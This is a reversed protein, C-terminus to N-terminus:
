GILAVSRNILAVLEAQRNTGTKGLVHRLHTRATNITIAHEGAAHEVTKGKVVTAAIAAEAATLGFLERLRRTQVDPVEPDRLFIIAAPAPIAAQQDRLPGVTLTLPLRGRRAVDMSTEGADAAALPSRTACTVAHVVCQSLAATDARSRACLAGGSLYLGEGAALLREGLPCAHLLGRQRDVVLVALRSRELAHDAAIRALGAVQLRTRLTLARRFHELVTTGLARHEEGFAPASRPRHIGFTASTGDPMQLLAAVLHFQGQKRCWDQYFGTREFEAPSHLDQALMVGSAALERARKVWLDNTRWYAGEERQQPTHLRLNETFDLLKVQENRDRVHLAASPADFIRALDGAVGGWASENAAAEYFRGVVDLLRERKQQLQM